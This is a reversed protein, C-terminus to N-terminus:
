GLGLGLCPGGEPMALPGDEVPAVRQQEVAAARRLQLGGDEAGAGRRAVGGVAVADAQDHTAAERRARSVFGFGFGFGLEFGFGFGFGIGLGSGLGSGLGLADPSDATAEIIWLTGPAHWGLRASGVKQDASYRGM